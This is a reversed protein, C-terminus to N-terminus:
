ADASMHQVAETVEWGAERLADAARRVAATVQPATAPPLGIMLSAATEPAPRGL